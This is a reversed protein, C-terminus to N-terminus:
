VNKHIRRYMYGDPHNYDVYREIESRIMRTEYNIKEELYLVSYQNNRNSAIMDITEVQKIIGKLLDEIKKFERKTM